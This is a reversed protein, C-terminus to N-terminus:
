ERGDLRRVGVNVSFPHCLMLTQAPLETQRDLPLLGMFVASEKPVRVIDIDQGEIVARRQYILVVQGTANKTRAQWAVALLLVTLTFIARKMNQSGHGVPWCQLTPQSERVSAAKKGGRFVTCTVSVDARANM